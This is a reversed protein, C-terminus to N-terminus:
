RVLIRAAQLALLACENECTYLRPSSDRFVHSLAWPRCPLVGYRRSLPRGCQQRLDCTPWGVPFRPGAPWRIMDVCVCVCVCVCCLACRAVLPGPASRQWAINFNWGLCFLEWRAKRVESGQALGRARAKDSAQTKTTDQRRNTFLTSFFYRMFVTGRAAFVLTCGTLGQVVFIDGTPATGECDAADDEDFPAQDARIPTVTIRVSSAPLLGQGPM